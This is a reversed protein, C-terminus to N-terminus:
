PARNFPRSTHRRKVTAGRDADGADSAAPAAARPKGDFDALATVTLVEDYAAPVNTAFENTENGAGVVYTVGAAVSRCIAMHLVDGNTNGCNGDDSMNAFRLSMNAVRVKAANATVWDIGCALSSLSATKSDVVRVSYLPAGPALGVVGQADDKAGVVGAVQRGHANYADYSRSGTCSKGGVINLDAAPGSGGDIVAVGTSVAGSGNGSGGLHSPADSSQSEPADHAGTEDAVSCAPNLTARAVGARTPPAAQSPGRLRQLTSTM